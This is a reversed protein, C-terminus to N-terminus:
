VESTLFLRKSEEILSNFLYMIRAISDDRFQKEEEKNEFRIIKKTEGDSDDGKKM